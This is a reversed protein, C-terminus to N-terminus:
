GFYKIYGLNKSLYKKGQSYTEYIIITNNYNNINYTSVFQNILKYKRELTCLHTFVLM